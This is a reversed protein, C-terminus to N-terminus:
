YKRLKELFMLQSYLELIWSLILKVSLPTGSIHLNVKATIIKPAHALGLNMHVGLSINFEVFAHNQAELPFSVKNLIIASM